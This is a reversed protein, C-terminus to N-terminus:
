LEEWDGCGEGRFYAAIQEWIDEYASYVDDYIKSGKKYKHGFPTIDSLMCSESDPDSDYVFVAEYDVREELFLVDSVLEDKDKLHLWYGLDFGYCKRWCGTLAYLEDTAKYLKMEYGNMYHDVWPEGDMDFLEKIFEKLSILSEKDRSLAMWSLDMGM